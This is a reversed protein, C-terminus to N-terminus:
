AIPMSTDMTIISVVVPWSYIIIKKQMYHDVIGYVTSICKAVLLPISKRLLARIAGCVVSM